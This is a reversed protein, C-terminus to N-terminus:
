DHPETEAVVPLVLWIEGFLEGQELNLQRLKILELVALFLGILRSREYPPEFLDRFSVRRDRELRERVMAQYVHQPTEDVVIQKTQLAETERMLRGFASVLDWLEVPRIPPPANPRAPEEPAERPWRRGQEEARAELAKAAEKFKKYEVLQKVLELKPDASEDQKEAPDHPLLMRSKIEMLTAAMVLFEGAGEVDVARLQELYRNFQEAIKAVPIDRVDVENQKVLYLLLDLPGHFVPLDAQFDM